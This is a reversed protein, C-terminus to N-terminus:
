DTVDWVLPNTGTPQPGRGTTKSTWSSWFTRTLRPCRPNSHWKRSRQKRQTGTKNQLLSFVPRKWNLQLLIWLSPYCCGVSMVCLLPCLVLSRFQWHCNGGPMRTLVLPMFEIMTADEFSCCRHVRRDYNCTHTFSIGHESSFCFKIQGHCTKFRMSPISSPTGFAHQYYMVPTRHNMRCPHETCM